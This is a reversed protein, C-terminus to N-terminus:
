LGFEHGVEQCVAFQRWAPTDYQAQSFYTDNVKVTGQAIHSGSTIWIQAVGLGGTSGYAANCVEVRGSTPDCQSPTTGGNVVTTNLVDSQSWDASATTLYSGTSWPSTLNKGININFPNATRAWHYRKWRHHASPSAQFALVAVVAALLGVCTRRLPIM